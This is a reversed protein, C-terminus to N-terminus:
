KKPKFQLVNDKKSKPIATPKPKEKKPKKTPAEEITIEELPFTMGLQNEQSYITFIATMPIYINFGLGSFKADCELADNGIRLNHTAMHSINLIIKGNKIHKEPIAVNPNTADVIIFPTMENDTIWEYLARILYPKNSTM